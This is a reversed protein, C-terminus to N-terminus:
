GARHKLTEILIERNRFRIDTGEAVYIVQEAIAAGHEGILTLAHAIHLLPALQILPPPEADTDGLAREVALATEYLLPEDEFIGVALAIDFQAVAAISRQFACCAVEDLRRIVTLFAACPHGDTELLELSRRAVRVAKDGAREAEAAIRGLALVIRLDVATPQRRAILRFVEEDADLALFDIQPERDLVRYALSPDSQLLAAIAWQTQELAREGMELILGRLRGLERDFARVTHGDTLDTRTPPTGPEPNM